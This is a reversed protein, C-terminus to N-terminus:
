KYFWDPGGPWPGSGVAEPDPSLSPSSVPFLRLRSKTPLDAFSAYRCLMSHTKLPTRTRCYACFTDYQLNHIIRCLMNTPSDSHLYPHFECNSVDLPKIKQPTFLVSHQSDARIRKVCTAVGHYNCGWHYGRAKNQVECIQNLGNNEPGGSM